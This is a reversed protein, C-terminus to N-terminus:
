LTAEQKFKKNRHYQLYGKNKDTVIIRMGERINLFVREEPALENSIVICGEDDFTIYGNDFAKDHNPCLLLGNNVDLKEKSDSESWPKIHSAILFAPNSVGCLCCKKYKHLLKERFVSQNVRVSVVAERSAGDLNLQEIENTIQDVYQELLGENKEILELISEYYKMPIIQKSQNFGVFSSYVSQMSEKDIPMQLYHLSKLDFKYYGVYNVGHEDVVSEKKAEVLIGIARVMGDYQFMVFTPGTVRIMQNPFYYLGGRNVMIKGIFERFDKETPFTEKDSPLIRISSVNYNSYM